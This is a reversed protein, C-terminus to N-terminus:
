TNEECLSHLLKLDDSTMSNNRGNHYNRIRDLDAAHGREAYRMAATWLPYIGRVLAEAKEAREKWDIVPIDKDVTEAEFLSIDERLIMLEWVLEIVESYTLEVGSRNTYAIRLKQTLKVTSSFESIKDMESM